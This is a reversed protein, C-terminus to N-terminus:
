AVDTLRRHTHSHQQAAEQLRATAEAISEPRAFYYGQMQDCRLLRLFNAQEGTEVGEAIVSLRLSHGLSIITSVLMATDPESLMGSIFSKDIKLMTVPLRALYRLSSYGTGFDDVALGVGLQRLENLKAVTEGDDAVILSETIELDIGPSATGELLASRVREVFDRARMQVQSVNVSIRPAILGAKVWSHHDLIASRLVWDGVDHILGTEELLPVFKAPPVLGLDPSNWRLLAEMGAIRQTEVDILPQYQLVFEGRLLAQRLRSEMSLREAVRENMEEAYFLYREGYEKANKLAVEAHGLLADASAGQALAIGMKLAIRLPGGCISFPAVTVEELCHEVWRAVEEPSDRGVIICAFSDNGLRAVPNASGAHEVLRAAIQRLLDDGAEQSLADNVARFREIDLVAIAVRAANGDCTGLLQSLRDRFLARNALGTLQDYLALHRVSEEKTIHDLAFAVDAALKELVMLEEERFGEDDMSRLAIVGEVTDAVILPLAVAACSTDTEAAHPDQCRSVIARRESVARRVCGSGASFGYDPPQSVNALEEASLGFWAIPAVEQRPHDVKGIWAARLAGHVVAVRCAENFLEGRDHVRVILSNIASLAAYVRKLRQAHYEAEARETIDQLTGIVIIQRDSEDDVCTEGQVHVRRRGGDPRLLRYEISFRTQEAVARTLAEGVSQRDVPHCGELFSTCDPTTMGMDIGLIRLSEYSWQVPQRLVEAPNAALIRWSGFGGVRQALTLAAQNRRLALEVLQKLESIDRLAALYAPTGDWDLQSVRMDAVGSTGDARVIDITTGEGEALPYGFSQALLAQPDRGFMAGAAANAFRIIGAADVVIVADGISEILTRVRRESEEHALRRRDLEDIFRQREIAHELTKVIGRCHSEGKVICDQAGNRLVTALLKRDRAGAIVVVPLQPWHARLSEFCELGGGRANLDILAVDIRQERLHEAAEALNVAARVELAILPDQELETRILGQPGREDGILLVQLATGATQARDAGANNATVPRM